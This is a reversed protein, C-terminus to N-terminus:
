VPLEKKLRQFFMKGPRALWNGERGLAGAHGGADSCVVLEPGAVPVRVELSCVM